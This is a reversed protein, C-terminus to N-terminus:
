GKPELRSQVKMRVADRQASKKASVAARVQEDDDASLLDLVHDPTSPNRAVKKRVTPDSDRSLSGLIAAPTFTTAALLGRVLASEDKALIEIAELDERTLEGDPLRCRELFAHLNPQCSGAWELLLAARGPGIGPIHELVPGRLLIDTSTFIGKARLIALTGPGIQPIGNPIPRNHQDPM